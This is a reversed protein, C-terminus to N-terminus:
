RLRKLATKGTFVVQELPSPRQEVLTRVDAFTDDNRVSHRPQLWADPRTTGRDSTFVRTYRLTKLRSLVKRDYSGLPCAAVSIPAGLERELIARADVLEEELSAPNLGRWPQHHMGHTGVLMGSTRLEKLGDGDVSGPQGLRAALPFFTGTLKRKQLAPLAIAVDSANGDDFSLDITPHNTVYDMIEAFFDESIWYPAEGTELERGPTGIGHFCLNM